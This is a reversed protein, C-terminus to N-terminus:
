CLFGAECQCRNKSLVPCPATYLVRGPATTLYALLRSRNLLPGPREQSGPQGEGEPGPPQRPSTWGALAPARYQIALHPLQDLKAGGEGWGYTM